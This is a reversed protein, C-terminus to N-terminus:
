AGTTITIRFGDPDVLGFDREGWSQTQPEHSLTGGAAEIRAAVADVDQATTCYLRVGEGKMRDRGKKWDDQGLYLTVAGAHMEAGRLEGQVRWEDAVVFGLVDRYWAISRAIDNVTFGATISRLRLTSPTSKRREVKPAAVAAPVKKRVVAAKTRVVTKKAKRSKKAAKTGAM